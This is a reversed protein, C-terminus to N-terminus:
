NATANGQPAAAGSVGGCDIRPAAVWSVLPEQQIYREFFARRSSGATGQKVQRLFRMNKGTIGYTGTTTTTHTEHTHRHDLNLTTESLDLM